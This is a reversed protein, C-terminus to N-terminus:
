TKIANVRDELTLIKRKMENQYETGHLSAMNPEFTLILATIDLEESAHTVRVAVEGASVPTGCQDKVFTDLSAFFHDRFVPLIYM